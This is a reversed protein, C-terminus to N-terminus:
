HKLGHFRVAARPGFYNHDPTFVLRALAANAEALSARFILLRDGIVEGTRSGGPAFLGDGGLAGDLLAGGAANGGHLFYLGALGDSSLSTKERPSVSEQTGPEHWSLSLTGHRAGVTITVVGSADAENLDVDRVSVGVGVALPTDEDVFRRDISAIALAMGDPAARSGDPVYGPIVFVPPDNVPAVRLWVTASVPAGVATGDVSGPHPGFGSASGVEALDEVILEISDLGSVDSNFNLDPWYVLGAVARDIDAARGTVQAWRWWLM